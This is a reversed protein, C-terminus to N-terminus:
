PGEEYRTPPLNMPYGRMGLVPQAFAEACAIPLRATVWATLMVDRGFGLAHFVALIAAARQPGVALGPITWSTRAACEILRTAVLREEASSAVYRIPASGTGGSALWAFWEDHENLLHAAQQAVTTAIIGITSASTTACVRALVGAHSPAENVGIPACALLAADLVAAKGSDLLDGSWALGLADRFAYHALLDRDVDYGGLRPTVGPAVVRAEITDPWAGVDM